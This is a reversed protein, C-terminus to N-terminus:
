TRMLHNLTSLFIALMIWGFVGELTVWKRFEDRSNWDASGLRTFTNISFYLSELLSVKSKIQKIEESSRYIGAKGWYFRLLIRKNKDKALSISPNKYIIAFFIIFFVIWDITYSLKTGYGCTIWSLADTWKSFDTIYKKDQSIKRYNYYINDADVFQGGGNYYKMFREFSKGDTYTTNSTDPGHFDASINFTAGRFDASSNFKAFLFSTYNNFKALIFNASRNFNAASFLVYDEFHTFNFNTYNNFNVNSFYVVNNFFVSSFDASSNFRADSFNASSNFKADSFDVSSNFSVQPFQTFGNFNAYSFNTSSNFRTQSFNAIKDFSAYSFNASSNFRTHSFVAFSNFEVQSFNASSNFRAQSFDTYSNLLVNSFDFCGEFISNKIKINSEIISVNESIGCFLDILEKSYGNNLLQSYEPNPVTKLKIKSVNLEGVIRCNTYNVDEGNEIHKLIEEAKVDRYETAHVATAFLLVVLISLVIFFVLPKSKM